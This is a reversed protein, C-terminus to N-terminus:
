RPEIREFSTSNHTWTRNFNKYKQPIKEQFSCESNFVNRDQLQQAIGGNKWVLCYQFEKQDIGANTIFEGTTTAYTRKMERM